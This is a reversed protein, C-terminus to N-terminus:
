GVVTVSPDALVRVLAYVDDMENGTDADLWVKTACAHTCLFFLSLAFLKKMTMLLASVFRSSLALRGKATAYNWQSYPNWLSGGVFELMDVAHLVREVVLVRAAYM